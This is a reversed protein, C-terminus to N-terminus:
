IKLFRLYNYREQHVVILITLVLDRSVKLLDSTTYNACTMTGYSKEEKVRSKIEMQISYIQCQCLGM